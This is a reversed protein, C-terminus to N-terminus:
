INRNNKIFLIFYFLLPKVLINLKNILGSEMTKLIGPIIADTPEQTISLQKYNIKFALKPYVCEWKRKVNYNKISEYKEM